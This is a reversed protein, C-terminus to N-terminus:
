RNKDWEFEENLLKEFSEKWRVKVEAEGTAIKGETGKVYGAGVVDRNKSIM